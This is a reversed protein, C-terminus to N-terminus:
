PMREDCPKSAATAGGIALCYVLALLRVPDGAKVGLRHEVIPALIEALEQRRSSSL